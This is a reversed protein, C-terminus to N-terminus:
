MDYCGIKFHGTRVVSPSMEWAHKINWQYWGGKAIPLAEKIRVKCVVTTKRTEAGKQIAFAVSENSPNRIRLELRLMFWDESLYGLSIDKMASAMCSFDIERTNGGRQRRDFFDAASCM